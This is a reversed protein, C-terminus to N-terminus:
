LLVLVLLAVRHDHRRVGVILGRERHQAFSLSADKFHVFDEVWLGCLFLYYFHCM